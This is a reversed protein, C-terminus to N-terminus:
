PRCRTLVSRALPMLTLNRASALGNADSAMCHCSWKCRIAHPAQCESSSTATPVEVAVSIEFQLAAAGLSYGQPLCAPLCAADAVAAHMCAHAYTHKCAPPLPPPLAGVLCAPLCAPTAPAADAQM